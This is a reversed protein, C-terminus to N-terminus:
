QANALYEYFYVRHDISFLQKTRAGLLNKELLVGQHLIRDLALTVIIIDSLQCVVIQFLSFTTLFLALKKIPM